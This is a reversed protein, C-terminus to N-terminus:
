QNDTNVTPSCLVSHLRSPQPTTSRSPFLTPPFVVSPRCACFTCCSAELQVPAPSARTLVNSTWPSGAFTVPSLLLSLMQLSSHLMRPQDANPTRCAPFPHTCWLYLHPLRLSCFTTPNRRLPTAPAHTTAAAAARAPRALRRRAARAAAGRPPTEDRGCVLRGARGEPQPLLRGAKVAM